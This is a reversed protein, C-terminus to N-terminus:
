RTCEICQARRGDYAKVYGIAERNHNMTYPAAFQERRAWPAEVRDNPPNHINYIIDKRKMEEEPGKGVDLGSIPTLRTYKM